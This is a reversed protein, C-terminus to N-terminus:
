VGGTAQSTSQLGPLSALYAELDVARYRVLRGIRVFSPGNGAVRDKQLSSVARGLIAAVDTERLLKFMEPSDARDAKQEM